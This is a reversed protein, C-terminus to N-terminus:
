CCVDQKEPLGLLWDTHISWYSVLCTLTSNADLAPEERDAAIQLHIMSTLSKDLTGGREGMHVTPRCGFGAMVVWVGGSSYGKTPQKIIIM